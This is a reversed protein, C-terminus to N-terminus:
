ALGLEDPGFGNARTEATALQVVCQNDMRTDVLRIEAVRIQKPGIRM